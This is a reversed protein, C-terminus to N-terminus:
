SSTSPFRSQWEALEEVLNKLIHNLDPKETLIYEILEIQSEIRKIEGYQYIVEGMSFNRPQDKWHTMEEKYELILISLPKPLNTM